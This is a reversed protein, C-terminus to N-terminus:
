SDLFDIQAMLEKPAEIGERKLKNLMNMLPKMQGALQKDYRNLLEAYQPNERAKERIERKFPCFTFLIERAVRNLRPSNNSEFKIYTMYDAIFFNKFNNSYRKLDTKVKEKNEATLSSNKRYFQLYDCYLSTLSPDRVDNWHVGQITKCMEWRFEGFMRLMCDETNEVNFISILMRAKTNRRKGEIEQWLTARSGVNPLLIMYPTVDETYRLQPIGIQPNSYLSERCFVGFDVSRINAYYENVRQTTLYASDLPKIVNEADFVPVFSTIRGFTMRNGLAFLNKIEFEVRRDPDNLMSDAEAQSIDGANRQEKLYAPWDQDFENKSPEAEMAYVKLLWEFMTLVNGDPDPLYSKAMNYLITTNKEGALEEDVFGFMFFMKVEIPYNDNLAAKKFAPTFVEYFTNSINRRLIRADDSSDYRNAKNKFEVIEAEFKAAVAPPVEAYSLITSLANKVPCIGDGDALDGNEAGEIKARIMNITAAFDSTKRKLDNKYAFLNKFIDVLIHQTEQSLMVVGTAIETSLTYFSKKLFEDNAKISKIFDHKWGLAVSENVPETITEMNDFRKPTEGAKICLVNYESYDAKLTDYEEKASKYLRDYAEFAGLSLSVAQAALIAAIKPNSNIVSPIDKDSNYAYSYVSCEELAEYSFVYEKGPTEMTGVISGVGMPLKLDGLTLMLKGKLVVEITGVTKDGARHLVEGKQLAVVGM